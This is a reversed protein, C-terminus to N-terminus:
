KERFQKPTVGYYNKFTRNFYSQNEYGCARAIEVIKLTEEALLTRAKEMKIDTIYKVLTKGTEKKFIYSVYAPALHVKGAVYDLSVDRMYEKEVLNKIKQIVALDDEPREQVTDLIEHINKQFFTIIERSSKSYFLVDSSSLIKEHKVDPYRDYIAQIVSFLMNQIYLKSIRRNSLIAEVLNDTFKGALERSGADIAQLLQRRVAEVDDSYYESAQRRETWVIEEGLVFLERQAQQIRAMEQELGAMTDVMRSVIASMGAGAFATVDRSLKRLQGELRETEQYKKERVMLCAENPFLNWYETEEGLYMKVLDLFLKEYTEFFNDMFEVHILRCSEQVSFLEAEAREREGARLPVGTLLKFFVNQRNQWKEQRREERQHCAERISSLLAEMVRRFEDIEIPKLLYNVANAELAQKAYDFEGYASFIVIKTEPYRENVIKALELGTMQPMKVDTFLIDAPNKELCELAKRGNAAQRVELPYQYKEILWAIGEREEREDDVLLIKLM